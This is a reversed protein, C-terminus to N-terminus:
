KVSQIKSVLAMMWRPDFTVSIFGNEQATDTTRIPRYHTIVDSYANILSWATGRFNNLDPENLAEIFANRRAEARVAQLESMGDEVPFMEDMIKQLEYDSIKTSAFMEAVKEFDALFQHASNLMKQAEAIQDGANKTHKLSYSYNSNRMALSIQNQCVIRLPAMAMQVPSSGDFSNRFVIYPTFDDGLITRKPLEGILWQKGRATEGYKKLSLEKMYGVSGLAEANSIPCYKDSVPGYARGTKLNVVTSKGELQKLEGKSEYYLPAKGVEFVFGEPLGNILRKSDVDNGLKEFMSTRDM